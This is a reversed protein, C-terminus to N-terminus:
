RRSTSSSHNKMLDVGTGRALFFITAQQKEYLLLAPAGGGAASFADVAARAICLYLPNAYTIARNRVFPRAFGALCECVGPDIRVHDGDPSIAATHHRPLKLTWDVICSHACLEANFEVYRPSEIRGVLETAQLM